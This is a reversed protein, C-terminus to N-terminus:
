NKTREQLKCFGGPSHPIILGEDCAEEPILYHLQICIHTVQFSREKRTLGKKIGQRSEKRKRRGFINPMPRSTYVTVGAQM